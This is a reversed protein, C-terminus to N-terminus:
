LYTKCHRHNDTQKEVVTEDISFLSYLSILYLSTVPVLRTNVMAQYSQWGCVCKSEVEWGGKCNQPVKHIIWLNLELPIHTSIIYAM